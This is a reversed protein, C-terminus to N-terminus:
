QQGGPPTIPWYQEDLCWRWEGDGDQWAAVKRAVPQRQAHTAHFDMCYAATNVFAMLDGPAPRNPLFVIRRTILDSELCLSGFLHAAVPGTGHDAVDPARPLLVPDMLVGHEELGIDDATAALRVWLPGAGTDRTEVVKAVTLGCQDLLARGPEAYLDYLHELLLTALKRGSFALAPRSLLDDLYREGAVPRYAPYLGLTGRLTGGDERLGYGHGGWTLSPRSGLVATALETTYQEWQTAHALYNVGFGGGIDVARPALGRARCEELAVLCGELAVAKEAPSTTDLHYAVGTLEVADGYREATKLVADLERIPAGFRSRRTLMKVGASEFGSLRLLVRVRPLGQARVLAALQDLEVASDLSVTVGTRAALWLFEPDKPGTAMILAPAFGCGLAHQLEGLSAVDVGAGTTVLRRLLASSRDAKHALFTRGSLHHKSYVSRFREVNEGIQDPLVLGLPSGLADALTHLFGSSGLLSSVRPSVRPELYLAGSM